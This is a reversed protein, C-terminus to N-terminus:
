KYLISQIFKSLFFWLFAMFGIILGCIVWQSIDGLVEYINQLIPYIESELLQYIQRDYDYM